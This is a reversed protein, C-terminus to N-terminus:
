SEDVCVEDFKRAGIHFMTKLLKQPDPPNLKPVRMPPIVERPDTAGLQGLLWKTNHQLFNYITQLAISNLFSNIKLSKQKSM